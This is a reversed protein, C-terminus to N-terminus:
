KMLVMRKTEQFGPTELRYFYTGSPLHGAEFRVMHEGAPQDERVLTNVEEGLINFVRLVVKGALSTAYMITTSPNFPNPFNQKLAYSTPLDEAPPTSSTSNTKQLVIHDIWYQDGSEASSGLWFMLRGDSVNRRVTGAFDVTYLAWETSLEIHRSLGYNAYPSNHQQLVVDFGRGSSSYAAFSLRYEANTELPVNYQYFQMNNGSQSILLSVAQDDDYGPSVQRLSGTGNTYFTWASTGADFDSNDLVNRGTAQDSGVTFSRVVSWSSTGLGNGASVRWYYLTGPELGNVIFNAASLGEQDVVM